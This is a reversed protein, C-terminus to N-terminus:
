NKKFTALSKQSRIDMPLCNWLLPGAVSFARKGYSELNYNPDKLLCKSASRLSRTPVYDTILDQLYKPSIRERAKFTLVLTKFAIRSEVPLWPLSKLVPHIHDHKSSGVILRAACNQIRQLRAILNKPVGCLLANCHDLRSTVLSHVIIEAAHQSIYKRIKRINSIHFFASKCVSTIQQDMTLNHDFMVGINRACETPMIMENGVVVPLLPPMQRYKSHVLLLETKDDNLKLFHSQMWIKIDNVCLEMSSKADAMCAYDQARFSLYLQTDDAYTHYSINHRRVIDGIPSIYLTFLFPGLFSGQPVGFPFDYWSSSKTNVVVAQRGYSLYSEFWQLTKGKIGFRNALTYLM